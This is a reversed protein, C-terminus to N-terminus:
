YSFHLSFSVTFLNLNLFKDFHKGNLYFDYVFLSTIIDNRLYDIGRQRELFWFPQKWWKIKLSEGIWSRLCNIFLAKSELNKINRSNVRVNRVNIRRKNWIIVVGVGAYCIINIIFTAFHFSSTITFAIPGTEKRLDGHCRLINWPIYIHRM